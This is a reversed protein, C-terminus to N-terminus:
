FSARLKFQVGGADSLQFQDSDREAFSEGIFFRRDFGYVYALSGSIERSLVFRVGLNWEKKDYFFREDKKPVLNQFSRPSWAVSTFLYLPPTAMYSLETNAAFPSAFATLSLGFASRWSIFGFPLGLLAKYSQRNFSYAFGPLPIKNLVTRNDSYNLFYFWSDGDSRKKEYFTTASISRDHSFLREYRGSDSVSVVAGGRGEWLSEESWGLSFEMAGLEHAVSLHRDPIEIMEEANVRHGSIGAFYTATGRSLLPFQLSGKQEEIPRRPSSSAGSGLQQHEFSVSVSKLAEPGRLFSMEQAQAPPACLILLLIWSM